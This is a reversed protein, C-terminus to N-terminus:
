DAGDPTKWAQDYDFGDLEDLEDLITDIDRQLIEETDDEWKEFDEEHSIELASTTKKKTKKKPKPEEDDVLGFAKRLSDDVMERKKREWRQLEECARDREDKLVKDYRTSLIIHRMLFWEQMLPEGSEDYILVQVFTIAADDPDEEMDVITGIMGIMADHATNWHQWSNDATPTIQVWDGKKFTAM